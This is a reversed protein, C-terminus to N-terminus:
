FFGAVCQDNKNGELRYAKTGEHYGAARFIDTNGAGLPLISPSTVNSTAYTLGRDYM